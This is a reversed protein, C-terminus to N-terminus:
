DIASRIWPALAAIEMYVYWGGCVGNAAIGALVHRGTADQVALPGGSDGQCPSPEPSRGVGPTERLRQLFERADRDRALQTLARGIEQVDRWSERTAALLVNGTCLQHGRVYHPLVECWAKRTIPLRAQQLTGASAQPSSTSAGWGLVTAETGADLSRENLPLPPQDAPPDLALLAVDFDCIRKGLFRQMLESCRQGYDPHAVVRAVGHEGSARGLGERLRGALDALALDDRGLVVTLDAPSWGDACHAATAVWGPAVLVGGCLAGESGDATQRIGVVAAMWPYDAVSAPAGGELAASPAPLLVGAGFALAVLAALRRLAPRNRPLALLQAM